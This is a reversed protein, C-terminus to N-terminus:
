VLEKYAIATENYFSTIDSRSFPIGSYKLCSHLKSHVNIKQKIANALQGTSNQEVVIVTRAEEIYNSLEMKPLPHVMRIQAHGVKVGHGELEMRAERIAGYTAGFGIFLVEPQKNGDYKIADDQPVFQLKRARKNMQAVRNNPDESPHGTQSHEIGTFHHMGKRQGPISRPSIGDETVEFRKFMKDPNDLLEADSIMKGRELKAQQFDNSEVTQKSTVLLLDAAIFVPCQFQEALNFAKQMDNIAEEVTSPALVIRPAEGHTGTIMANLDSQEVKTAMGSSPGGRQCNVIVVPVETMGALGVAEQMLSIGPGSSATMARTGAYGAGIVMAIAALEDETQVVVGGYQPMLRVLNELIESAPTIPYGAMFRCGGLISGLTIADNGSLFIHDGPEPDELTFRITTLQQLYEFGKQLAVINKNVIAEGKKEFQEKVAREFTEIPHSLLACAAGVAVINKMLPSGIEKAMEYFPFEYLHVGESIAINDMKVTKPDFLIVGGEIMSAQHLNITEEDFAIVIEIKEATNYVQDNSIRLNFDTHGGKIRSSFNRYSFLYFGIRGMSKALIEGVSEIGEGQQGGVLCSLESRSEM